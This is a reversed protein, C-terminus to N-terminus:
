RRAARRARRASARRRAASRRASRSRKSKGGAQPESSSALEGRVQQVGVSVPAEARARREVNRGHAERAARAEPKSDSGEGDLRTGVLVGLLAVAVALAAAAALRTRASAEM